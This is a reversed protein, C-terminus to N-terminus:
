MGYHLLQSPVDLDAVLELRLELVQVLVYSGFYKRVRPEQLLEPRL